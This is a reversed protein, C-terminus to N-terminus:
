LVISRTLHRPNDPDLGRLRALGVALLQAGILEVLPDGRGIRVTAGTTRIDAALSEDAVGFTWVHSRPGAVALPGHRYDLAPYSEAWAQAAERIKLAAENALGRTWGTGLYVYHDYDAPDPGAPGDGALLAEAEDPLGAVDEGFAARALLLVTTPFRTQVVSREDVFELDVVEDAVRAIPSNPVGTVAVTRVGRPLAELAALVETTTGSRSLAVVTDYDRRPWPESAYAADTAGLGARERLAALSEAVFESSGCGIVLVHEGARALARADVRQLAARWIAPQSAIEDVTVTM